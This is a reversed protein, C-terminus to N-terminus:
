EAAVPVPHPAAHWAALLAQREQEYSQVARQKIPGFGRVRDPLSALRIALAHNDPSLDRVIMEVTAWYEDRLRREM